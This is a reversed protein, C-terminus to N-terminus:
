YSARIFHGYTYPGQMVSNLNIQKHMYIAWNPAFLEGETQVFRSVEVYKQIGLYLYLSAWDLCLMLASLYKELWAIEGSRGSRALSHAHGGM